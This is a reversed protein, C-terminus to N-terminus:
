KTCSKIKRKPLGKDINLYVLANMLSFTFNCLSFILYFHMLKRVCSIHCIKRFLTKHYLFFIKIKRESISYSLSNFDPHYKKALRFYAVKISKVDATKNVGLADYYDVRKLLKRCTHFFRGHNLFMTSLSKIKSTSVESKSPSLTIM